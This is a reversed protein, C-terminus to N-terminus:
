AEALQNAAATLAIVTDLETGTPAAAYSALLLDVVDALAMLLMLEGVAIAVSSGVVSVGVDADEAPATLGATLLTRDVVLEISEDDGLLVVARLASPQQSSHRLLITVPLDPAGALRLAGGVGRTTLTHESM